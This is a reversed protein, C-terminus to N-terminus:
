SSVTVIDVQEEFDIAGLLTGDFSQADAILTGRSYSQEIVELNTFVGQADRSIIPRTALASAAAACLLLINLKAM